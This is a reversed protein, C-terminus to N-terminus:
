KPERQLHDPDYLRILQNLIEAQGKRAFAMFPTTDPGTNSLEALRDKMEKTVSKDWHTTTPPDMSLAIDKCENIASLFSKSAQDFDMTKAAEKSFKFSGMIHPPPQPPPPREEQQPPEPAQRKVPTSRSYKTRIAVGKAIHDSLPSSNMMNTVFKIPVPLKPYEEANLSSYTTMVVEQLTKLDEFIWHDREDHYYTYKVDAILKNALYVATALTTNVHDNHTVLFDYILGTPHEGTLLNPDLETAAKLLCAFEVISQRANQIPKDVPYRPRYVHTTWYPNRM